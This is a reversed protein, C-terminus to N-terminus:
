KEVIIKAYKHKKEFEKHCTECMIIPLARLIFHGKWLISLIIPNGRETKRLENSCWVCDVM